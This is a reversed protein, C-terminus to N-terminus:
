HKRILKATVRQFRPAGVWILSFAVPWAIYFAHWWRGLFGDGLGTNIWTILCTMLSVMYFSMLVAFVLPAFRPAFLM